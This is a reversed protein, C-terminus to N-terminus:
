KLLSHSLRKIDVRPFERQTYIIKKESSVYALSALRKVTGVPLKVIPTTAKKAFDYFHIQHSNSYDHQFYIGSDTVEWMYSVRFSEKDLVQIPKINKENPNFSWLGKNRGPTFWITGFKDQEAYKVNRKLLTYPEGGEVPFAYLSVKNNVKAAAIVGSNDILWSPRFHQEFDSSITRVAQNQVNLIYLVNKKNETKPGLFAIYKGDHSWRPFTLHSSLTTLQKRNTGDVNSVWIEEFGSENSIYVLQKNKDSYHPSHYSNESHMLPFPTTAISGGLSLSSLSTLLQWNHFVVDQSNPIFRPYSFGPINLKTTKKDDLSIVYGDRNGSINASYLIRDGKPHWTLGKIDGESDTLQELKGQEVDFLFLDENFGEDLTRSVILKKGDPSFEADLETYRCDKECQYMISTKDNNELDILQLTTKKDETDAVYVLKTGDPSITLSFDIEGTCTAVVRPEMTIINLHIVECQNYKWHKRQYYIDESNAHWVARGEYFESFTLQRPELELNDMSKVFLNPRHGIKRWSYALYKNDPSISPYVERGPDSIITTIEMNQQTDNRLITVLLVVSMLFFLCAPLIFKWNWKSNSIRNEAKTLDDVEQEFFEPKDLLRYGKKRVTEIGTFDAKKFENRLNWVANNLAKEGVYYNGDWLTDILEQREVVVPFRHALTALVEILRPQLITIEGDPFEVSHDSPRITCQKIIFPTNFNM